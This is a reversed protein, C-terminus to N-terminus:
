AISPSQDWEGSAVARRGTPDAPQEVYARHLARVGDHVQAAPVLFSLSERHTYSGRLDIGADELLRFAELLSAPRSGLGFGILSVAGMGATVSLGDGYRRELQQLFEEPDPIELDSLLLDFSGGGQRDIRGFILDYDAVLRFVDRHLGPDDVPGQLRVLDQRGSVGAVAPKRPLFLDAASSREVRVRTGPPPGDPSLVEFGIGNSAAFEVAEAKVVQAGHWAMEEMESSSIEPLPRAKEVVRPDASYISDVDTFIQCRHAGLAAAIATATTDSGGRGLTTLEGDADAGQYGAVVVVAGRALERRLRSTRLSLIRANGHASNTLIGCEGGSLSVATEGLDRLAMALLAMATFEGTALLRDLERRNPDAAVERAMAVLDGTTRGMASVVVVVASGQRRAEAIRRATAKIKDTSDLCTGGYKQVILRSGM